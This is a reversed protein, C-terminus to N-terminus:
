TLQQALAALEDDSVRPKPWPPISVSDAEYRPIVHMHLHFVTQFAVLRTAQLLNLGEPELRDRLQDAVRYTMATVAQWVEPPVDWLDRHHERPIVLTHGRTFPAIDLFAITHEDEAIRHAPATGAVIQCFVCDEPM